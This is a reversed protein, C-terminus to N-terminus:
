STYLQLKNTYVRSPISIPSHLKGPKHIKVNGYICIYNLSILNNINKKILLDNKRLIQLNLPILLFCYNKHLM